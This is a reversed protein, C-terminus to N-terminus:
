SRWFINRGRIKHPYSVQHRVWLSSYLNINNSFLTRLCINTYLFSSIVPFIVFIAYYSSWKFNINKPNNFWSLYFPYSMCCFHSFYHMNTTLLGQLFISSPLGLHLQSFLTIISVESISQSPSSKISQPYTATFPKQFCLSSSRLEM